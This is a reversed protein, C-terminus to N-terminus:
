ILRHYINLCYPTNKNIKHFRVQFEAAIKNNPDTSTTVPVRSGSPSTVVVLCENVEAGRPDISITAPRVLSSMKIGTGSIAVM